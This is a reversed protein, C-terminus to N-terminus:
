RSAATLLRPAVQKKRSMVGPLDVVGGAPRHGFARDLLGADGAVLLESGKALIDTVMLESLLQGERERRARLAELLEDRREFLADGVTEIQAISITRGRGVEYEKVDRSLIEEAPLGAVDWTREFMELEAADVALV